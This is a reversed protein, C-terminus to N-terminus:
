YLKATIRNRLTLYFSDIFLLNLVLALVQLNLAFGQLNAAFAQL